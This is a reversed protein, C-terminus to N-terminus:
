AHSGTGRRSENIVIVSSQFLSRSPQTFSIDLGMFCLDFINVMYSGCESVFLKLESAWYSGLVHGM